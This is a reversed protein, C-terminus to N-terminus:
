DLLLHPWEQEPRNAWQLAEVIAHLRWSVYIIMEKARIQLGFVSLQKFCHSPQSGQFCFLFLVLHMSSCVHPWLLFFFGIHYAISQMRAVTIVSSYETFPSCHRRVGSSPVTVFGIWGDSTYKICKHTNIRCSFFFKAAFHGWQLSSDFILGSRLPCASRQSRFTCPSHSPLYLLPPSPPTPPPAPHIIQLQFMSCMFVFFFSLHCLAPCGLYLRHQRLPQLGRASQWTGPRCDM